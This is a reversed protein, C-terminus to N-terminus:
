QKLKSITHEVFTLVKAVLTDDLSVTQRRQSRCLPCSNTYTTEESFKDTCKICFTHPCMFLSTSHLYQEDCISCTFTEEKETNNHTMIIQQKMQEFSGMSFDSKYFVLVEPVEHTLLSGIESALENFSSIITQDQTNPGLLLSLFLTYETHTLVSRFVWGSCGQIALLKDVRTFDIVICLDQNNRCERGCFVEAYLFSHFKWYEQFQDTRDEANPILEKISAFFDEFCQHERGRRNRGRRGRGRAMAPTLKKQEYQKEVYLVYKVKM